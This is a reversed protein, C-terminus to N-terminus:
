WFDPQSYSISKIPCGLIQTKYSEDGFEKEEMYTNVSEDFIVSYCQGDKSFNFIYYGNVGSYGEQEFGDDILVSANKGIYKSLEQESVPPQTVPIVKIIELGSRFQASKKDYDDDFFDLEDLAEQTEDPMIVIVEYGMNDCEYYCTYTSGLGMSGHYKFGDRELDGITKGNYSNIDDNAEPTYVTQCETPESQEFPNSNANETHPEGKTTIENETIEEFIITSEPESQISFETNLTTTINKNDDPEKDKCSSLSIAM